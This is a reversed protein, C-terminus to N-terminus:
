YEAGLVKLMTKHAETLGKVGSLNLGEYIRPPKLTQLCEGTRIDWLQITEDQSGSALMSGDPSFAVSWIGSAHGELTKLCEGTSVDWLKVTQDQSGTAIAEGNISFAISLVGGKHGQLTAWCEGAEIDWLKVTQDESASALLHKGGCRDLPPSFTVSWIWGGHGTCTRVLEGTNADWLKVTSDVSGSALIRSCFSFALAFIYRGRDCVTRVVEGTKGDWLIITSDGGGTALLLGDPSYAIPWAWASHGFCTKLCEGTAFDWLKVTGSYLSSALIQGDPSFVVQNIPDAHHHLSQLCQGTKLDWLRIIQGSSALTQGDRSFAVSRMRLSHGQVAKLCQGTSANWLKLGASCTAVTRGDPSFAVSSVRSFHGQLVQRCQGTGMDWLRATRDESCSAVTQGDPSWAVSLVASAHGRLALLCEGTEIEWCRITQDDSGSLLRDGDASFAVSSVRNGHGTFTKLCKGTSVEWLKVSSDDSSSAITRGDPSFAVSRVGSAHGELTTLCYGAKWNWLKITRDVGGTALTRGDPSFAVSLVLMQEPLVQLCEGTQCDWLKVAEGGSSSSALIQGDPSFAVSFVMSAHKKCTAVRRPEPLEWLYIEGNVDGTALLKGCPSFAVSVLSDQPDAFVSSSLDAGAFNVRHLETAPVYAQWVPLRSFNLDALSIQAQHFLNILNGAGYRAVPFFDAQLKGAIQKFRNELTQKTKFTAELRAVLIELILLVQSNRIYDKGTAKLLSHSLLLELNGTLIERYIQEILRQTVYEMVVPQQTFRVYPLVSNSPEAPLSSKEILCKWILSELAELLRARPVPPFIDGQLEAISAWDRNIALWYMLQKEFESLREFQQELLTSIEGYIATGEALFIAINGAFLDKISTSIIKLALPNGGYIKTLLERDSESGVLGKRTFIAHAEAKLGTLQLSRVPLTEGEFAAIERLKERSTLVLCSQHSVEAFQRILEGYPEYGERYQTSRSSFSNDLSEGSSLITEANDLVLLCRSSRLYAVLRSILGSPTNPLNNEQRDSLFQIIEPLLELFPPANRLSRWIILEFDSQVQQALKVSLATKGIGGMGLLAVVRCREQVIWQQLVSLEETRGYFISTDIAEGWDQRNSITQSANQEDIKAGESQSPSETIRRQLASLFNTKSVPEGLAESLVKWFKPGVTRKLYSASYGTVSAIEEYTRNQCAGQFVIKEADNLHRGTKVKVARDAAAFLEEFNM